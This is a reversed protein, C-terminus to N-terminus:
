SAVVRSAPRNGPTQETSDRPLHRLSHTSLDHRRNCDALQGHNATEYAAWRLSIGTEVGAPVPTARTM